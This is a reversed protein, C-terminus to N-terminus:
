PVQFIDQLMVKDQASGAQPQTISQPIGLRRLIASFDDPRWSHRLAIALTVAQAYRAKSIHKRDGLLEDFLEDAYLQDLTTALLAPTWDMDTTRAALKSLERLRTHSRWELLNRYTVAVHLAFAAGRSRDRCRHCVDRRRTAEFPRRRTM